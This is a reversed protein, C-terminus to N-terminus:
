VVIEAYHVRSLWLPETTARRVRIYMFPRPNSERERSFTPVVSVRSKRTSEKVTTEATTRFWSSVQQLDLLQHPLTRPTYVRVYYPM